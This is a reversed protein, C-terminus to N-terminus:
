VHVQADHRTWVLAINDRAGRQHYLALLNDLALQGDTAHELAQQIEEDSVEKNLGDTCLLFTDGDMLSYWGHDISLQQHGGVAATLSQSDAHVPTPHTLRDRDELANHHTHDITLQLLQKNRLRYIRSDGSWSCMVSHKRAQLLAVTCGIVHHQATSAKDILHRNCSNLTALIRRKCIGAQPSSEYHAMQSAVYQSAYDGLAHGGMGDAVLWLREAPLDLVSDENVSRIQGVETLSSSQWM